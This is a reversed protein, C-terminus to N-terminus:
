KFPALEVRLANGYAVLAGKTASYASGFPYSCIAALSANLLIRADGSAKLLPFFAQVMRMAGYVNV